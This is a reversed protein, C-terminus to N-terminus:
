GESGRLGRKDNRKGVKEGYRMLKKCGKLRIGHAMEGAAAKECAETGGQRRRRSRLRGGTKEETVTSM